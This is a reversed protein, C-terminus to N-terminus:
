RNKIFSRRQRISLPPKTHPLCILFSLFSAGTVKAAVQLIISVLLVSQLVSVSLSVTQRGENRGARVASHLTGVLIPRDTDLLHALAAAWQGPAIPEPLLRALM